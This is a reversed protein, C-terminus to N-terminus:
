ASVPLTRTPDLLTHALMVPDAFGAAFTDAVSQDATAAALLDLIHPPPPQLFANTLATIPGAFSWLEDEIHQAFAEDLPPNAAISQALIWASHSGINAGQGLVPDNLTWADGIALALRGDSLRTSVQRVTPTIAGSIVDNTGRLEFTRPDIRNALAPAFEDFVDLLAAALGNLDATDHHTIRELPSGPIAEILFSTAVGSTTLIPQSFIEGAGPAINFSVVPPDTPAIGTCIGGILRRQPIRYPSRRPDVPFLTGLDSGRGAAVVVLDHGATRACLDHPDMAGPEVRLEGGRAAYDELLRSLYVRFDVAQAPAHVRGAFQLPTGVVAVDIGRTLTREDDWHSVGLLRERERTAPFRAVLNELRGTRLEDPSREAFLTTDVGLQQLRLALTVGSIGTGLIAINMVAEEM